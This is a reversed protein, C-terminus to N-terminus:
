DKNIRHVKGGAKSLSSAYSGQFHDGTTVWLKGEPGFDVGGGYHCCSDYGQTDQWILTESSLDLRSSTGGSNEVHTFRAVRAKRGSAGSDPTYLIYIYPSAPFDPDIAVDILGRENAFNIGFAHQSSDLDGYEEVNRTAGLVECISLKGKKQGLLMRGDPFFRITMPQDINTVIDEVAFSPPPSAARLPSALVALLLLVLWVVPQFRHM